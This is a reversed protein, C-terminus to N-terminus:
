ECPLKRSPIFWLVSARRAKAALFLSRKRISAVTLLLSLRYGVKGVTVEIGDAILANTIDDRTQPEDSVLAFVKETLEDGEARKAAAREKAKENRHDLQALKKTAFEVLVDVDFTGDLISNYIERETIKTIKFKM